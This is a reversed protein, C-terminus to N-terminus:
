DDKNSRDLMHAISSISGSDVPKDPDGPKYNKPTYNQKSRNAKAIDGMTQASKKSDNSGSNLMKETVSPKSAVKQKQEEVLEDISKKNFFRNILITGMTRFVSNAVWYIGVGAPLTFCIWVSLLPMMTNMMKMSSAMGNEQGPAPKPQEGSVIKFSLYQTLGALIPILIGPWFGAIGQGFHVPSDMVNLGGPLMNIHIITDKVGSIADVVAPNSAFANSVSDWNTTKVNNLADIISEINGFDFKSVRINLDTMLQNLIDAGGVTNQIPTAIQLFLEHISNVYSPINYIIRYLALLIPFSILLPLCGSTPSAGYKHYVEMTEMQMRRQSVEDTKGKYKRQIKQIEPNVLSSVRTFRQQKITLPLMLINTILTFLIIALAVNPIGVFDLFEYILNMILGLIWAFPGLIGGVKSLVVIDM